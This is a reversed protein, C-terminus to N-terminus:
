SSSFILKRLRISRSIWRGFKMLHDYKVSFSKEFLAKKIISNIRNKMIPYSRWKLNLFNQFCIKFVLEDDLTKNIAIRKTPIRWTRNYTKLFNFLFLESSIRPYGFENSPQHASHKPYFQIFHRRVIRFLTLRHSKM